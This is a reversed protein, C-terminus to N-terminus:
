FSITRGSGGMGGMVRSFMMMVSSVTSDVRFFRAGFLADPGSLILGLTSFSVHLSIVGLKVIRKLLEMFFVLNGCCHFSASTVGMWLFCDFALSSFKLGM